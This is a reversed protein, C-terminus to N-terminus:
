SINQWQLLQFCHKNPIEFCTIAYPILQFYFWLQGLNILKQKMTNFSFWNFCVLAYGKHEGVAEGSLFVFFGEETQLKATLPCDTHTQFHMISSLCPNLSTHPRLQKRNHNAKVTLMGRSSNLWNCVKILRPDIGGRPVSVTKCIDHEM